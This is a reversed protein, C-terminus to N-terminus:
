SKRAIFKFYHTQLEFNISVKAGHFLYDNAVDQGGTKVSSYVLGAAEKVM